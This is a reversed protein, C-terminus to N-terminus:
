EGDDGLLAQEAQRRVYGKDPEPLDAARFEYITESTESTTRSYPFVFLSDVANNRNRVPQSGPDAIQKTYGFADLVRRPPTYGVEVAAPACSPTCSVDAAFPTHHTTEFGFYLFSRDHQEGLESKSVEHGRGSLYEAAKIKLEVHSHGESSSTNSHKFHSEVWTSDPDVGEYREEHLTLHGERILTLVAEYYKPDCDKAPTLIGKLRRISPQAIM